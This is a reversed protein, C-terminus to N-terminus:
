DVQRVERSEPSWYRWVRHLSSEVAQLFDQSHERVEWSGCHGLNRSWYTLQQPCYNQSQFWNRHIARHVCLYQQRISDHFVDERCIYGWRSGDEFHPQYQWFKGEEKSVEDYLLILIVISESMMRRGPRICVRVLSINCDDLQADHLLSPHNLQPGQWETIELIGLLIGLFVRLVDDRSGVLSSEGEPFAGRIKHPENFRYVESSLWDKLDAASM